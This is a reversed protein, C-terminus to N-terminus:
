EALVGPSSRHHDGDKGSIGARFGLREFDVLLVDAGITKKM